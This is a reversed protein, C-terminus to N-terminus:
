FFLDFNPRTIENLCAGIGWVTAYILVNYLKDEIDAPVKDEKEEEEDDMDKSPRYGKIYCEILRIMHNVVFPGSGPCPFKGNKRTYEVTTDLVYNFIKEFKEIIKPDIFTRLDNMYSTVYVSHGLQEPELLVM